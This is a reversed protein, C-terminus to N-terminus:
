ATRPWSDCRRMAGTRPKGWGLRVRVAVSSSDLSLRLFLRLDWANCICIVPNKTVQILKILAQVPWVAVDLKPPKCRGAFDLCAQVGGKDGGAM